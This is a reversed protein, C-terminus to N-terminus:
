ETRATRTGPEIKRRARTVRGVQLNMPLNM